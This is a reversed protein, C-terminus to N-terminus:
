AKIVATKPVWLSKRNWNINYYVDNSSKMIFKIVDKSNLESALYDKNAYQLKNANDLKFTRIGDKLAESTWKLADGKKM